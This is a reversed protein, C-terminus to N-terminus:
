PCLIPLINFANLINDIKTFYMESTGDAYTTKGKCIGVLCKGSPIVKIVPGGSDGPLVYISIHFIASIIYLQIM